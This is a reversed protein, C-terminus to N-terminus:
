GTQTVASLFVFAAPGHARRTVPAAAPADRDVDAPQYEEPAALQVEFARRQMLRVTTTGDFSKM